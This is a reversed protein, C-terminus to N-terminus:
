PSRLRRQTRGRPPPVGTGFQEISLFDLDGDRAPTPAVVAVVLWARWGCAAFSYVGYVGYVGREWVYMRTCAQLNVLPGRM